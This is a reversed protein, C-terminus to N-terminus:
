QVTAPAVQRCRVGCDVPIFSQDGQAARLAPFHRDLSAGFHAVEVLELSTVRDTQVVFEIVRDFFEIGIRHGFERGGCCRTHDPGLFALAGITGDAGDLRRDDEDFGYSLAAPRHRKKV